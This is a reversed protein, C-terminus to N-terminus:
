RYGSPSWGDSRRPSWSDSSLSIGRRGGGNHSVGGRALSTRGYLGNLERYRQDRGIREPPKGWEGDDFFSINGALSKDIAWEPPPVFRACFDHMKQESGQTYSLLNEVVPILLRTIDPPGSSSSKAATSTPAKSRPVLIQEVVGLNTRDIRSGDDKRASLIRQYLDEHRQNRSTAFCWDYLEKDYAAQEEKTKTKWMNDGDLDQPTPPGPLLPPLGRDTEIGGYRPGTPIRQAVFDGIVGVHDLSDSRPLRPAPTVHLYGRPHEFLSTSEGGSKEDDNARDLLPDHMVTRGSAGVNRISAHDSFNQAANRTRQIPAIYMQDDVTSAQHVTYANYRSDYHRTENETGYRTPLSMRSESESASTIQVSHGVYEDGSGHRSTPLPDAPAYASDAHSSFDNGHDGHEAPYHVSGFILRRLRDEHSHADGEAQTSRQIRSSPTPSSPLSELDPTGLLVRSKVIPLAVPYRIQPGSPATAHPRPSTESDVSKSGHLCAHIERLGFPLGMVVAERQKAIAHFYALTNQQLSQIETEGKLRDNSLQGETRKRINSYQGVNIWQFHESFWQQASVDGNPHICFQVQGNLTGPHSQCYSPSPLDNGFVDKIEKKNYSATVAPTHNEERIHYANLASVRSRRATIVHFGSDDIERARQFDSHHFHSHHIYGDHPDDTASHNLPPTPQFVKAHVDFASYNLRDTQNIAEIDQSESFDFPIWKAARGSRQGRRGLRESARDCEQLLEPSASLHMSTDHMAQAGREKPIDGLAEFM